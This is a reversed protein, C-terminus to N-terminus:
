KYYEVRQQERQQRGALLNIIRECESKISAIRLQGCQIHLLAILAQAFHIKRLMVWSSVNCSKGGMYGIGFIYAKYAYIIFAIHHSGHFKGQLIVASINAVATAVKPVFNGLRLLVFNINVKLALQLSDM